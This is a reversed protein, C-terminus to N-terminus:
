NYEWGGNQPDYKAFEGGSLNSAMMGIEFIGESNWPTSLYLASQTLLGSIGFSEDKHRYHIGVEDSKVEVLDYEITGKIEEFQEQSFPVTNNEGEFFNDGSFEKEKRMTEASYVRVDYSM